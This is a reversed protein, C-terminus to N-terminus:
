EWTSLTRIRRAMIAWHYDSVWVTSCFSMFDYTMSPRRFEGDLLGWGLSGISGEANPFDQDGGELLPCTPPGQIHRLGQNHGLVHLSHVVTALNTSSAFQDSEDLVACSPYFSGNGAPITFFEPGHIGHYYVNTAVQDELRLTRLSDLITSEDVHAPLVMPERVTVQVTQVANLQFLLSRFEEVWNPALEFNSGPSRVPVLVVKLQMNGPLIGLDDLGDAPLRPPRNTKAPQELGLEEGEFLEVSFRTLAEVASADLEWNFTTDLDEPDSSGGQIVQTQTLRYPPSGQTALTLVASIKRPIWDPDTTWSARLLTNRGEILQLPREPAPIIQGAEALKIRLGQNASVGILQIARAAMAAPPPPASGTEAEGDSASGSGHAEYSGISGTAGCAAM